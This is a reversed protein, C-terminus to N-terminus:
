PFFLTKKFTNGIKEGQIVSIIAFDLNKIAKQLGNIYSVTIKKYNLATISNNISINHSGMIYCTENYKNSVRKYM